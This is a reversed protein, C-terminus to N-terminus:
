RRFRPKYWAQGKADRKPGTIADCLGHFVKSEESGPLGINVRMPQAFLSKKDMVGSPSCVELRFEFTSSLGHFGEFETLVLADEGLPTTLHLLRNDQTIQSGM